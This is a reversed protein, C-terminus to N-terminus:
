QLCPGLVDPTFDAGEHQIGWGLGRLFFLFSRDCRTGVIDGCRVGPRAKLSSTCAEMLLHMFQPFNGPAQVFVQWPPVGQRWKENVMLVISMLYAPSVREPTFHHWLYSELYQSFELTM